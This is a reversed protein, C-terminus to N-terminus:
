LAVCGPNGAADCNYNTRYGSLTVSVGSPGTVTVDVRMVRDTNAGGNVLGNLNVSGSTDVSVQVSYAALAAIPNGFQDTPAESLGNYDCVNDYAVRSGEVTGAGGCIRSTQPDIFRKLLIEELYAEAILQAQRSVMPDVSGRTAVVFTSMIAVLAVSIIIIALIMELLSLGRQRASRCM